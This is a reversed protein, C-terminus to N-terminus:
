AKGVTAGEERFLQRIGEMFEMRRAERERRKEEAKEMNKRRMAARFAELQEKSRRVRCEPCYKPRYRRSSTFVKGCTCTIEVIDTIGMAAREQKKRERYGVGYERCKALLEERHTEYYVKRTARAQERHAARYEAIQDRHEERYRRNVERMKDVNAAYYARSRVRFQEKHEQRYRKQYAADREPDRHHIRERCEPCFKVNCALSEFTTECSKCVVSVPNKLM